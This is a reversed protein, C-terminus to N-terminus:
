AAQAGDRKQYKGLNRRKMSERRGGASGILECNVLVDPILSGNYVRNREEMLTKM